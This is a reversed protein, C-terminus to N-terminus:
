ENDKPLLNNEKLYCWMAAAAKALSKEEIVNRWASYQGQLYAIRWGKQDPHSNICLWKGEPEGEHILRRPLKQLIEEATPADAIMPYNCYISEVQPIIEGKSYDSRVDFWKFYTGMIDTKMSEPKDTFSNITGVGTWGQHWGADQLRKAWELSVTISKPTNM